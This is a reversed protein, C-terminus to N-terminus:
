LGIDLRYFTHELASKKLLNYVDERCAKISDQQSTVMLIRGGNSVLQQNDDLATGAFYTQALPLTDALELKIGETYGEPYGEAALVVGLSAKDSLQVDFNEVNLHATIVEYFDSEILPLIIQTEPDGFRVNFEIVKPGTATLMLGSYLVGTYPTGETVMQKVLPQVVTDVTEKLLADDVFKVPSYAGMGGTNLGQNGDHARKYDQAVGIHIISEGNILSFLSYEPGTLFEEIIVSSGMKIMMQDLALEADLLNEAIVVGKGAALGNQKIVIPMVQKSLYAKAAEIEAVQFSRYSATPVGARRMVQKAFEKSTELKAAVQTPGVIALDAIQFSDVIGKSLPGESGVFTIDINNTQAFKKIDDIDNIGMAPLTKIKSANLLMGPNGPIVYVESVHKSEEFARALAHERGGSGIVLIKKNM